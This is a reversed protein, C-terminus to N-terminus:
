ARGGKVLQLTPRAPISEDENLAVNQNWCAAGCIWGEAVQFPDIAKSYGIDEFGYAEVDAAPYWFRTFTDQVITRHCLFCTEENGYRSENPDDAFIRDHQGQTLGAPYNTMETGGELHIWRSHRSSWGM